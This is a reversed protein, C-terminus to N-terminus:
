SPLSADPVPVASAQKPKRKTGRTPGRRNPNEDVSKRYASERRIMEERSVLLVRSVLSSFADFEKSTTKKDSMPQDKLRGSKKVLDSLYKARREINAVDWEQFNKALHLTMEVETKSAYEPRKKSYEQNAATSNMRRGFITLNGIHWLYPKLLAQNEPGGWENAFPKRPYIHEVNSEKTIGTEHTSSQMYQAIKNTVYKATSPTLVVNKSAEITEEMPPCLATLEQKVYEMCAKTKQNKEGDKGMRTRIERAILYFTDEIKSANKQGIISYKTIAVLLWQTVRSFEEAELSKYASLLVPFAPSFNLTRVISFIYKATNEPLQKEDVDLIQIYLDCEDFCSQAFSLSKIGDKEILKKLAKFLDINKLDGYKSVWMHRIFRQIDRKGMKEILETWVSRIEARSAVPDAERMLYSLLLDPVSLRLGRDNLTEFITFASDETEVPIRAMVLDRQVVVRLKTLYQIKQPALPMDKISNHIKDCFFDFASKINMHTKLTPKTDPVPPDTQITKRFYEKDTEGMLLAYRGVDLGDDSLKTIFHSYTYSALDTFPQENFSRSVKCIASFLITATAVRQQGDLLEIFGQKEVLTVIPGLFYKKPANEQGRRDMFRILDDWFAEVHGSDWSYGRQFEPIRVQSTQDEGLLGAITSARSEFAGDDTMNGRPYQWKSATM